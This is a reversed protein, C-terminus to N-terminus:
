CNAIYKPLLYKNKENKLLSCTKGIYDPPFSNENHFFTLVYMKWLEKTMTKELITKSSVIVVCLILTTWNTHQTECKELPVKTATTYVLAFSASEYQRM